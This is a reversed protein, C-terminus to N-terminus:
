VKFEDVSRQAKTRNFLTAVGNAVCARHILSLMDVFESFVIARCPIQQQKSCLVILDRVVAEV